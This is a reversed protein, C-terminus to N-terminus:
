RPWFAVPQTRRVRRNGIESRPKGPQLMAEVTRRHRRRLSRSGCGRPGARMRADVVLAVGDDRIPACEEVEVVDEGNVRREPEVRALPSRAIPLLERQHFSHARDASARSGAAIAALLPSQPPPSGKWAALRLGGIRAVLQLDSPNFLETRSTPRVHEARAPAPAEPRGRASRVARM